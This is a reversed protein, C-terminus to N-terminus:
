NRTPIPRETGDPLVEYDIMVLTQYLKVDSVVLRDPQRRRGRPRPGRVAGLADVRIMAKQGRVGGTPEDRFEASGTRPGGAAPEGAPFPDTNSCRTRVKVIRRCACTAGSASVMAEHVKTNVQMRELNPIRLMKQGEKVQAGQEIMGQQRGSFRSSESKFYVVM